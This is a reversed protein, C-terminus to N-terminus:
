PATAIPKLLVAVPVPDTARPEAEVAAPGPERAKPALAMAAFAPSTARPEPDVVAAATAVELAVIAPIDKANAPVFGVLVTLTPKKPPARVIVL